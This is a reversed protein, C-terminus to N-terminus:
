YPCSSTCICDGYPGCCFSSGASCGTPTCAGQCACGSGTCCSPLGSCSSLCDGCADRSGGGGPDAVQAPEKIQYFGAFQACDTDDGLLYWAEPNMDDGQYHGLWVECGGCDYADLCTMWLVKEHPNNVGATPQCATTDLSAVFGEETFTAPFQTKPETGLAEDLEAVALAVGYPACQPTTGGGGSTSTAGSGGSTTGPSITGVCEGGTCVAEGDCDEDAECSTGGSFCGASGLMSAFAMTAVAAALRVGMGLSSM